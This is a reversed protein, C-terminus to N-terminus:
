VQSFPARHLSKRSSYDAFHESHGATPATQQLGAELKYTYDDLRQSKRPLREKPRAIQRLICNWPVPASFPIETSIFFVSRMM